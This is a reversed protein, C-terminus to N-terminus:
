FCLFTKKPVVEEVPTTVPRATNVVPKVALLERIISEASGAKNDFRRYQAGEAIAAGWDTKIRGEIPLKVEEAIGQDDWVTTVLFITGSAGGCMRKLRKMSPHLRDENRFIGQLYLAGLLPPKPTRYSQIADKLKRHRIFKTLWKSSASGVKSTIWFIPIMEELLMV